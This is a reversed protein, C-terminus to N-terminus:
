RGEASLVPVHVSELQELSSRSVRDISVSAHPCKAPSAFSKIARINLAARQSVGVCRDIGLAPIDAVAVEFIVHDDRLKSVHRLAGEVEAVCSVTFAYM